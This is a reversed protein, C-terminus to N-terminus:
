CKPFSGAWLTSQSSKREQFPFLNHWDFELCSVVTQCKIRRVINEAFDTSLLSLHIAIMRPQRCDV